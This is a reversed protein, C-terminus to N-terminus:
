NNVRYARQVGRIRMISHILMDVVTASSVEVSITGYMTGDGRSSFNLGRINLKMERTVIETIQNALGPMDAGTVAITARFSGDASSRWRADMVRYPYNEKLRAANPCDTRHITIGSSITVFGFIDDGKIPNCCKALKYEINNIKEDIVLADSRRQTPTDDHQAKAEEKKREAEAAAERRQEEAEGSLWQQLIEKISLFDIKQLAIM